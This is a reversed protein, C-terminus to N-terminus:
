RDLITRPRPKPQTKSVSVDATQQESARILVSADHEARQAEITPSAVTKLSQISQGLSLQEVVMKRKLDAFPIGLNNSVNAAAVFQGLNRFGEAATMVDIGPLRSQVKSALKTNQQLKLQVPTPTPTTTTAIRTEKTAVKTEKTAAKTDANVTQKSGPGTATKSATKTSASKTVPKVSTSQAPKTAPKTAAPKATTPKTTPPKSVTPKSVSPKAAVPKSMQAPGHAAKGPATPQPGHQAQVVSNAVALSVIMALVLRKM